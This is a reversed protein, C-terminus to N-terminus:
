WGMTGQRRRHRGSGSRLRLRSPPGVTATTPRLDAPAARHDRGRHRAGRRRGPPGAGAGGRDTRHASLHDHVRQSGRRGRGTPCGAPALGPRRGPALGRRLAPLQQRRAARASRQWAVSLPDVAAWPRCLVVLDPAQGPPLPRLDTLPSVRRVADAAVLSRLRGEDTAAAGGVIAEGAQTAGRDRVHLRGVGSAALVAALPTGVRNAGEVVVASQRRARWRGGARGGPVAAPLEAEARAAAAPGPDTALLDAAALDHLLGAARLGALLDDVADPPLGGAAAADSRVARQSRRGDLRRLLAAIETGAPSVRLGAGGDVGGVQLVEADLRLVPTAAPLLPHPSETVM